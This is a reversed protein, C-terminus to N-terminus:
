RAHLEGDRVVIGGDVVRGELQEALAQLTPGLDAGVHLLAISGSDTVRTAGSPPVIHVDEGALDLEDLIHKTADRAGGDGDIAWLEAPDDREASLM